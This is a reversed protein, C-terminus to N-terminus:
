GSGQVASHVRFRFNGPLFSKGVQSLNFDSRSQQIFLVVGTSSMQSNSLLRVENFDDSVFGM